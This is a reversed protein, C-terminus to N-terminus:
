EMQCNMTVSNGSYDIFSRIIANDSTNKWYSVPKSKPNYQLESVHSMVDWPCYVDFDGFHYGDYQEKIEDSKETLNTDRLIQTVEGQVFGFCENLCSNTITDSVFNNTGAFVSEKALKLCGTIVAFQLARNDKFVQMLGKIVDLMEEYYGGSNAKAVPADYEDILLVVKKGYHQHMIRTLLMLSGKIDKLPVNGSMLQRAINKDADGVRDGDLLYSYKKYLESIVWTLMDYAGKFDLGDVQRFSVFIIPYQNMWEACLTPYESIKLGEFLKKSDMTIDFLSELMSMGLTKGFRRPRTILTVKTGERDLIDKILCSKNVYYFVKKRIEEFDSIGVPIDIKKAM